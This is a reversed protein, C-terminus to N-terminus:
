ASHRELERNCFLLRHTLVYILAYQNHTKVYEAIDSLLAPSDDPVSPLCVLDSNVVDEGANQLDDVANWLWELTEQTSLTPIIRSLKELIEMETVSTPSAVSMLEM